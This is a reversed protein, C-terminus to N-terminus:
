ETRTLLCVCEVHGTQPFLDVPQVREAQYSEGLIKLDRALTAPNCSVYVLKPVDAAMIAGLLEPDCGKRPPDVIVTDPNIGSELLADIEYEAKGPIFVANDIDNIQANIRADAVAASVSEVGYIRGAEEALSLGITGAGCYLDLIVDEPASAAFEKVVGYLVETQKTNIQFFSAPSIRFKLGCLRETLYMEGYLHINKEGMVKNSKGTHVNAFISTVGPMEARIKEVLADRYAITTDNVVLIVMSDGAENTRQTVGRLIGQGTKENYYTLKNDRAFETVARILDRCSEPQTLCDELAVVDHTGKAFYGLGQPSVKFQAKNRYRWPKDMGIIPLVALDKFGGIRELADAVVKEKRALQAEYSLDMWACGGCRGFYGCPPDTRLTSKESFRAVRGKQYNKKVLFVDVDVVDGPVADDVFVTMGEAHGVGEGSQTLDEINLDKIVAM